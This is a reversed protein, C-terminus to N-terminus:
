IQVPVSVQTWRGPKERKCQEERRMGPFLSYTTIGLRDLTPTGISNYFWQAQAHV